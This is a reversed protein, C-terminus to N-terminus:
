TFLFAFFMNIEDSLLYSRNDYLIYEYRGEKDRERERVCVCICEINEYDSRVQKKIKLAL